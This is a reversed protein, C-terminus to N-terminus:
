YPPRQAKDTIVGLAEMLGRDTGESLSSNAWQALESLEKPAPDFKLLFGVFARRMAKHEEPSRMKDSM